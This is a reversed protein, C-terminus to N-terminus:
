QKGSNFIKRQTAQDGGILIDCSEASSRIVKYAFASKNQLLQVQTKMKILLLPM